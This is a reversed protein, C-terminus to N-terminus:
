CLIARRSHVGTWGLHTIWPYFVIIVTLTDSRGGLNLPFCSTDKMCIPCTPLGNYSWGLFINYARFDHVSWLYAVQLNFKQKQDTM